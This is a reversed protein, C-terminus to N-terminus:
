EHSPKDVGGDVPSWWGYGVAGGIIAAILLDTGLDLDGLVVGAGGYVPIAALSGLLLAGWRWTALPLLLGVVTGAIAGAGVYFAMLGMLTLGLRDVIGPGRVAIIALAVLSFFVGGLVGGFLGLLPNPQRLITM